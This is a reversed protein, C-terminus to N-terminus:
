LAITLERGFKNCSSSFRLKIPISVLLQYINEFFYDNGKDLQIHELPIKKSRKRKKIESIYNNINNRLTSNLCEFIFISKHRNFANFIKKKAPINGLLKNLDGESTGEHTLFIYPTETSSSTTSTASPPQVPGPAPDLKTNEFLGTVAASLASSAFMGALLEKIHHGPNTFLSSNALWEEILSQISKLGNILTSLASKVNEFQSLVKSGLAASIEVESVGPIVEAATLAANV